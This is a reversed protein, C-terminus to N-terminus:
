EKFFFGKVDTRGVQNVIMLIVSVIQGLVSVTTLIDSEAVNVGFLSLVMVALAVGNRSIVM